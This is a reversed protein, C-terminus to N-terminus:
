VVKSIELHEDLDGNLRSAGYESGVHHHYPVGTFLHHSKTPIDAGEAWEKRQLAMYGGEKNQKLGALLTSM